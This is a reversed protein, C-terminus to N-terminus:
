DPILSLAPGPVRVDLEASEQLKLRLRLLAGSEDAGRVKQRVEDRTGLGPRDARQRPASGPPTASRSPAPDASRQQPVVPVPETRPQPM